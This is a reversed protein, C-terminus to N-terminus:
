SFRQQRLSFCVFKRFLQKDTPFAPQQMNLFRFNCKQLIKQIVPLFRLKIPFSLFFDPFERFPVPRFIVSTESFRDCKQFFSISPNNM